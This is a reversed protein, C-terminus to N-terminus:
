MYASCTFWSVYYQKRFSFMFTQATARKRKLTCEEDPEVSTWFDSNFNSNLIKGLLASCTPFHSPHPYKVANRSWTDEQCNSIFLLTNTSNKKEGLQHKKVLLPINMIIYLNTFGASINKSQEYLLLLAPQTSGLSPFYKGSSINLKKLKPSYM